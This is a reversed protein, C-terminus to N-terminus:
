RYERVFVTEVLPQSGIAPGFDNRRLVVALGKSVRDSTIMREVIPTTASVLLALDHGTAPFTASWCGVGPQLEPVDPNYEDRSFSCAGSDVDHFLQDAVRKCAAHKGSCCITLMRAHANSFIHLVLKRQERGMKSAWRLVAESTSCDILVDAADIAARAEKLAAVGQAFPVNIAFPRVVSGPFMGNLRHAVAQVKHTGRDHASTTHRTLNELEVRDNDFVAVDTAGGRVIHEIVLSGIAGCGLVCIRKARTQEQLVGRVHMRSTSVNVAEAWPIEKERLAYAMCTRAFSDGNGRAGMKAAAAERAQKETIAVAQWNVEVDAGGVKRPIPAGVLVYFSGRLPAKKTAGRLVTWFDIGIADCMEALEGYTRACRHRKYILSPLLIWRAPAKSGSELFKSSFEPAHIQGADTSFSLVVVDKGNAHTAVQAMGLQSKTAQWLGLSQASENFLVAPESADRESRFDPLEWPQGDALLRGHAADEVWQIASRVYAELRGAADWPYDSQRRLCLQGGASKANQHPFGDLHEDRPYFTVQGYPFGAPIEAELEVVPPLGQANPQPVPVRCLFRADGRAGPELDRTIAVLGTQKLADFARAVEADIM